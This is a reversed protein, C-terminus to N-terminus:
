WVFRMASTESKLRSQAKVYCVLAEMGSYHKKLELSVM